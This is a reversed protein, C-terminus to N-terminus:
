EYRLAEMPHVRSARLAPLYGALLAVASVLLAVRLIVWPDRGAMGFLISEAYHGLGLAALIGIASGILTMKGLQWLVIGRVNGGNAGLAMRLGFERTRQAVTYALVGYLGVAALLTALIAFAVSLTSILRDLGVNETIQQELTRLDDVPLNADFRRVIDPIARLVPAPDSATRAYFTVSGVTADQRYPTFFVPPVDTKIDNYKADRVLGVIEIDLDNSGRTSMRKGVVDASDLRFKRAFAENIVAVTATEGVDADTFERGAILPMGLTSFFGPGIENYRSNSDIDPGREFGEVSVDTGWSSNALVPVLSATASSVGPIADVAEVVQDFLARSREPEYGNLEPSLSFTVVNEASLGLDVRSLNGLSKIFLGALVLLTMSLAIQATVLISRFRAAERAGSPQGSHSKLATVLNARTSHLAPYLGFLLGTLVSLGAAFLLVSPRLASLLMDTTQVPLISTVGALTWRAVVLSALGGIAALMCSETLLQRVLQRRSAGLSARVAMEQGRQAGRALLLNAVNACAILLVIGTVGLLMTLPLAADDDMSSQGTAGPTLDVQKARFQVMTADSMGNQLEAEVNNVIAQYTTNIEAGAQEVSVGDALRGFLYAWYSRRNDFADFGRVMEARMTIPVYIDPRTGLTTGEFGRAAVGVITLHHGNVVMTRNLVSADAGLNNSWYRHSLVAVFHGGLNRDDDPGFLRGLIPRVGLTSFYSGSVLTGTGSVTQGDLALNAGFTRHAALGTFGAFGKAELDRFMPYSFVEDCGGANNCSQSGPKPGPNALNVLRSPEHVPLSRLVLQDFLSFIATNAGIGLALSVIAVATVVPTQLLRRFAYKLAPM